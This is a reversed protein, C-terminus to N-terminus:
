SMTGDIWSASSSAPWGNMELKAVSNAVDGLVLLSSPVNRGTLPASSTAVLHWGRPKPGLEWLERYYRIRTAYHVVRIGVVAENRSCLEPLDDRDLPQVMEDTEKDEPRAPFIASWLSGVALCLTAVAGLLAVAHDM